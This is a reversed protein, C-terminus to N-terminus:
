EEAGQTREKHVDLSRGHHKAWSKTFEAGMYFIMSSFYVWIQLIAITSAVGYASGVNSRSLYLGILEKGLIFFVATFGTGILVDRWAIRADPFIKYMLAILAAVIGNTLVYNATKVVTSSLGQPLFLDIEKGVVAIGTSLLLSILFIGAMALIMAFSLLRKIMFVWITHRKPNPEIEWIENLSTQIQSFAGTASFLVAAIGLLTASRVNTFRTKVYEIVREVQSASEAGVLSQLQTLIENEVPQTGGLITGATLIVIILLGPLSFLTYFALAAAMTPCNDESFAVVADKATAWLSRMRDGLRFRHGIM